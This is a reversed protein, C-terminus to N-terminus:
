DDKAMAEAEARDLEELRASAAEARTQLDTIAALRVPDGHAQAARVLVELLRPHLTYSTLTDGLDLAAEPGESELVRAVLEQVRELILEDKEFLTHETANALDAAGAARAADVLYM